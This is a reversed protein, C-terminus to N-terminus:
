VRTDVIDLSQPLVQDFRSVCVNDVLSIMLEPDTGPDGEPQNNWSFRLLFADM